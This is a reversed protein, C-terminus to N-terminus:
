STTTSRDIPFDILNAVVGGQPEKPPMTPLILGNPQAVGTPYFNSWDYQDIQPHGFFYGQMMDIGFDKVKNVQDLTEVGEVITTYGLNKILQLVSKFLLINGRLLSKDIKVIDIPLESLRALNSYGSGFDDLMTTVGIDALRTLVSHAVQNDFHAAQETLEVAIQQPNIGANQITSEIRDCFGQDSLQRYTLNVSVFQENDCKTSIYECASEIVQYGFPIIAGNKELIPIFEEPSMAKGDLEWRALSEFGAIKYSDGDQRSVIPQYNQRIQSYNEQFNLACEIRRKRAMSKGIRSEFFEASSNKGGCNLKNKKAEYMAIDANRILESVTSGDKPYISIGISCGVQWTSNSANILEDFAKFIRNVALTSGVEDADPILVLFEDGGIRAVTTDARFANRLRQGCIKLIEDGVLHGATDNIVKFGNLDIFIIGFVSDTEDAIKMQCEINSELQTRNSLGTLADTTATISLHNIAEELKNQTNRLETIDHLTGVLILEGSETEYVNKITRINMLNNQTDTIIEECEAEERSLFVQEDSAFFEEAEEKSYLDFDNKGIMDSRKLGVLDCMVDNVLLIEHERNKVFLPTGCKNLLEILLAREIRPHNDVPKPNLM